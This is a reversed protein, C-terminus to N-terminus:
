YLYEKLSVSNLPYFEVVVISMSCGCCLGSGLQGLELKQEPFLLSM